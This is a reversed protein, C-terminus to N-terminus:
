RGTLSDLEALVDALEADTVTGLRDVFRSRDLARTQFVLAVSTNALGNKDSPDLDVTAPFRRASLQTTLPVVLVLPSGQGYVEDQIVLAPRRGGQERGGPFPLVVTWIEGRLM